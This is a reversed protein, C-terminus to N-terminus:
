IRIQDLARPCVFEFDDVFVKNIERELLEVAPHAYDCVASPILDHKVPVGNEYQDMYM